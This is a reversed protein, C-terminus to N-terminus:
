RILGRFPNTSKLKQLKSLVESCNKQPNNAIWERGARFMLGFQLQCADGTFDRDIAGQANLASLFQGPDMPRLQPCIASAMYRTALEQALRIAKFCRTGEPAGTLENLQKQAPGQASAQGAMLLVAAVFCSLLRMSGGGPIMPIDEFRQILTL